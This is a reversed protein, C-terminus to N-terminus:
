QAQFKLFLLKSAEIAARLSGEGCDNLNTVEFVVGCRGGKQINGM